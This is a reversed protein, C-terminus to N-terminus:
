SKLARLQSLQLDKIGKGALDLLTNLQDKSFTKKEANGQIEIFNGNGDLVVNLDVDANSDEEYNLDILPIGDVIGVSVATVQQIVPNKNLIGDKIMVEFGRNLAIWAGNIAATRTGADAQIVDCDIM